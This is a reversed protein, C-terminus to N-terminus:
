YVSMVCIIAIAGAMEASYTMKKNTLYLTKEGRIIPLAFWTSIGLTNLVIIIKVVLLFSLNM